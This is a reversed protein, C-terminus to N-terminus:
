ASCAVKKAFKASFPVKQNQHDERRRKRKRERDAEVEAMAHGMYKLPKIEHHTHRPYCEEDGNKFTVTITGDRLQGSVMGKRTEDKVTATTGVVDPCDVLELKRRDLREERGNAFVVKITGDRYEQSVECERNPNRAEVLTYEPINYVRLKHHTKPPYAVTSGDDYTVTMTGNSADHSTVSGLCRSAPRHRHKVRSGEPFTKHPSYVLRGCAVNDYRRIIRRGTAPDERYRVSLSSRDVRVVLGDEGCRSSSKACMGLFCCALPPAPFWGNERSHHTMTNKMYITSVPDKRIYSGDGGGGGGVVM